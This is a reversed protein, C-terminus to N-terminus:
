LSVKKKKPPLLIRKPERDINNTTDKEESMNARKVNTKNVHKIILNTNKKPFNNLINDIIRTKKSIKLFPKYTKYGESVFRKGLGGLPLILFQKM